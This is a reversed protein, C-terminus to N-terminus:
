SIMERLATRAIKGGTRPLQDVFAILNPTRDCGLHRQIFQALALKLANDELGTSRRVVLLAIQDIGAESRFGLAAADIVADHQELLNELEEPHIRDTSASKIALGNRGVLHFRGDDDRRMIDGTRLWDGDFKASTLEPDDLYGMMLQASKIQLEGHDSCVGDEDVLRAECGVPRGLSTDGAKADALSQSLCLGGTETLGYYNVVAVGHTDRLWSAVVQNLAAGTSYIARLDGLAGAPLRAGMLMLQRLFAPGAVLHNCRVEALWATRAFVNDLATDPVALWEVGGLPAAVLANRLGSMAHPEPLNVLRDGARWAFSGLTTRASHALGDRSVVVAKPVGTSGSTFLCAAPASGAIEVPLTMAAPTAGSDGAAVDALAIATAAPYLKALAPLLQEDAIVVAPRLNGAARALLYDPWGVDIPVFIAGLAVTAWFIAVLAPAQRGQYLVISGSAVGAAAFLRTTEAISRARASRGDGSVLLCDQGLLDVNRDRNVRCFGRRGRALDWRRARNDLLFSVPDRAKGAM